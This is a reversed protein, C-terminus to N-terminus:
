SLVTGTVSSEENARWARGMKGPVGQVPVGLWYLIDCGDAGLVNQVRIAREQRQCAWLGVALLATEQFTLPAM